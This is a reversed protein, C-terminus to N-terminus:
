GSAETQRRLVRGSRAGTHVGDRVTWAGNVFVHPIGLPARRPDRYTARDHVNAPDFVVVDAASGVALRGRRKM